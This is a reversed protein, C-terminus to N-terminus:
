VGPIGVVDFVQLGVGSLVSLLVVAVIYAVVGLLVAKVVGGPYRWVVVLIWGVLALISGVVPVWSLLGWVLAGFLATWVAHEVGRRDGRYVVQAAVFLSVGGVLLSVVFSVLSDVLPAM